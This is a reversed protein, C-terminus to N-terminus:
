AGASAAAINERFQQATRDYIVDAADYRGTQLSWIVLGKYKGLVAHASLDLIRSGDVRRGREVASLSTAAAIGVTPDLLIDGLWVQAHNGIQGHDWGVFRLDDVGGGVRVYVYYTLATANDCALQTALRLSDWRLATSAGYPAFRHAVAMAFLGRTTAPTPPMGASRAITAITPRCTRYMRPLTVPASRIARAARMLCGPAAPRIPQVATATGPLALLACAAAIASIARGNRYM